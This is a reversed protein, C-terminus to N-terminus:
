PNVFSLGPYSNARFHSYFSQFPLAKLIRKMGKRLSKQAHEHEGPFYQCRRICCHWFPVIDRFNDRPEYHTTHLLLQQSSKEPCARLTASVM